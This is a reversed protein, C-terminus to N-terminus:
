LKQFLSNIKNLIKVLDMPHELIFDPKTDDDGYGYWFGWKAFFTIIGLNKAGKIDRSLNDGVMAVEDAQLHLKKLVKLFPEKAPKFLNTDDFSVICDFYKDLKCHELRNKAQTSNADTLLGLLYSSNKLTNLMNIVGPYAVLNSIKTFKYANTAKQLIQNFTKTDLDFKTLYDSIAYQYDTGKSYYISFIEDFVKHIDKELNSDVIQKSAALVAKQKFEWFNILTNDLDFIVGKIM